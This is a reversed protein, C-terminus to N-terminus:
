NTAYDADDRQALRAAFPKRLWNFLCLFALCSAMLAGLAISYSSDGFGDGLLALAIVPDSM